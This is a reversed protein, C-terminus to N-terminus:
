RGPRPLAVSQGLRPAARWFTQFPRENHISELMGLYEEPLRAALDPDLGVRFVLVTQVGVKRGRDRRLWVEGDGLVEGAVAPNRGRRRALVIAAALVTRQPRPGTRPAPRSLDGSVIIRNGIDGSGTRGGAASGQSAREIGAANLVSRRKVERNPEVGFVGLGRSRSDVQCGM